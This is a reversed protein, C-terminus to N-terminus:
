KIAPYIYLRSISFTLSLYFITGEEEIMNGSLNLINLNNFNVESIVTAGETGIKKNRLNICTLRILKGKSLSRM